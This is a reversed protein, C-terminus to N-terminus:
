MLLLAFVQRKPGKPVQQFTLYTIVLQHFDSNAHLSTLLHEKDFIHNNYTCVNYQIPDPLPGGKTTPWGTNESCLLSNAEMKKYQITLITDSAAESLLEYHWLSQTM